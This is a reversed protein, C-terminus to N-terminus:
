KDRCLADVQIQYTVKKIKNVTYYYCDIPVSVRNVDRWHPGYGDIEFCARFSTKIYTFDLYRFGDLYDQIEYEPYLYDFHGFAPWWVQRLIMQEAHGHGDQLRRKAEGKRLKLHQRIFLECAEECAM